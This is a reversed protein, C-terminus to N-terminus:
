PQYAWGVAVTIGVRPIVQYGRPVTLVHALPILHPLRAFQLETMKKMVPHALRPDFLAPSLALPNKESKLLRRSPPRFKPGTYTVTCAPL